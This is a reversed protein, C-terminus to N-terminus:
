KEREREKTRKNTRELKQRKKEKVKAVSPPIDVRYSVYICIYM